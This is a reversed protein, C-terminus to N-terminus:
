FRTGNRKSATKIGGNICVVHDYIGMHLTSELHWTFLAKVKDFADM